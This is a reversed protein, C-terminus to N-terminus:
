VAARVAQAVYTEYAASLSGIVPGPLGAGVAAGDIRVVPVLGRSSSSIAAEDARALEGARPPTLDVAIGRERALDLVIRRTVGELVGHGATRLVGDRVVYFNSSFGELVAGDAGVILHEYAGPTALELSKRRQVFHASKTLPDDRQIAATTIVVVGREYVERPPACFPALAILERSDSGRASAPAALVDFRVRTEAFLAATCVQDLCRRLRAEDWAYDWGLRQMSQRTRALHHELDLFKRHQYTRLASYVGLRLDEYLADFGAAGAPVPLPMPGDAAVAYLLPPTM